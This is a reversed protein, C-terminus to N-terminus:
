GEACWVGDIQGLQHTQSGLNEPIDDPTDKSYPHIGLNVLNQIPKLWYLSIFSCFPEGLYEPGAPNQM